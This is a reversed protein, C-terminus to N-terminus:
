GFRVVNNQKQLTDSLPVRHSSSRWLQLLLLLMAWLARLRLHDGAELLRRRLLRRPPIPLWWLSWGGHRRIGIVDDDDNTRLPALHLPLSSSRTLHRNIFCFRRDIVISTFLLLLHGDGRSNRGCRGGTSGGRWRRGGRWSTAIAVSRRGSIQRVTGGFVACFWRRGRPVMMM